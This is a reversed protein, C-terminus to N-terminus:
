RMSSRRGATQMEVSLPNVVHGPDIASVVRHVRVRGDDVSAEVVQACYSGCAENLAIGRFVGPPLPAAGVRMSRRPM